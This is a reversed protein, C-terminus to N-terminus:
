VTENGLLGYYSDGGGQFSLIKYIYTQEGYQFCLFYLIRITFLSSFAGSPHNLMSPFPICLPM